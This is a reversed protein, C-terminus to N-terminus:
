RVSAAYDAQRCALRQSRRPEPRLEAGAVLSAVLEALALLGEVHFPARGSAVVVFPDEPVVDTWEAPLSVLGDADDRV